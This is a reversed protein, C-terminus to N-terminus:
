RSSAQGLTAIFRQSDGRLQAEGLAHLSGSLHNYGRM